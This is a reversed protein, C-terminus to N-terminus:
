SWDELYRCVEAFRDEWTNELARERAGKALQLRYEEDSLLLTIAAAMAETDRPPVLISCEDTLISRHPGIDTAIIPLGLALYEYIKAPSSVEFSDLPPLPSVAIDCRGVEQPIKEHDIYGHWKILIEETALEEISSIFDEDATGYLDVQIQARLDRKVTSVAKILDDIGRFESLSGLYVIRFKKGERPIPTFKDVDVALPIIGIKTRPVAYEKHFRDALSESLTIVGDARPLFIQHLRHVVVLLILYIIGRTDFKEFEKPQQYPDVRMDYVITSDTLFKAILVPIFINRYSYVVDPPYRLAQYIFYPIMIVNLSFAASSKVPIRHEHVSEIQSSLPAFVHTEWQMAFRQTLYYPETSGLATSIDATSLIWVREKGHM